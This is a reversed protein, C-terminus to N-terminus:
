TENEKFDLQSAGPSCVISKPAKELLWSDTQKARGDAMTWSVNPAAKDLSHCQCIVSLPLSNTGTEVRGVGSTEAKARAGSPEKM